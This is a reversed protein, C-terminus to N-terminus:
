HEEGISTTPCGTACGSPRRSDRRSFTRGPPLIGRALASSIRTGQGSPTPTAVSAFSCGARKSRMGWRLLEGDPLQVVPFTISESERLGLEARGHREDEVEVWEFDVVSRDLFDRIEYGESQSSKGFIRTRTNM